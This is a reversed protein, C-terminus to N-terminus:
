KKTEAIELKRGGASRWKAGGRLRRLRRARRLLPAVHGPFRWRGKTSSFYEFQGFSFRFRCRWSRCSQLSFTADFVGLPINRVSPESVVAWRPGLRWFRCLGALLEGSRVVAWRAFYARGLRRPVAGHWDSAAFIRVKEAGEHGGCGRVRDLREVWGLSGPGHRGRTAARRGAEAPDDRVWRFAALAFFRRLQAKAARGGASTGSQVAVVVAELPRTVHRAISAVTRECYRWRGALLVAAGAAAKAPPHKPRGPPLLPPLPQELVSFFVTRGQSGLAPDEFHMAWIPWPPADQGAALAQFGVNHQALLAYRPPLLVTGDGCDAFPDERFAAIGELSGSRLYMAALWAAALHHSCVRPVCLAMAHRTDGLSAAGLIIGNMQLVWYLRSVSRSACFRMFDLVVVRADGQNIGGLTETADVAIPASARAERLCRAAVHGWPVRFQAASSRCSACESSLPQSPVPQSLNLRWAKGCDSAM